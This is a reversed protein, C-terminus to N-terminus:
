NQSLTQKIGKGYKIILGDHYSKFDTNPSVEKNMNVNTKQKYYYSDSGWWVLGDIGKGNIQVNVLDKIRNEFDSVPVLKLGKDKNDPYLRHWVFPMVKKNYKAALRLCTAINQDIYSSESDGSRSSQPYYQYLSPFFVDCQQLLPAIADNWTRFNKDRSLFPLAYYGWQMNPRMQKAIVIAKMYEALGQKYDSSNPDGNRLKSFASGEWDLVGIGTANADPFVQGIRQRFAAEDLTPTYFDFLTVFSYGMGHLTQKANDSLDSMCIYIPMNAKSQGFSLSVLFILQIVILQISLILKKQM